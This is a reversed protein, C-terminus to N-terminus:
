WKKKDGFIEDLDSKTPADSNKAEEAEQIKEREKEGRQRVEADIDKQIQMLSQAKEDLWEDHIGASKIVELGKEILQKCSGVQQLRRLELVRQMLNSINVKLVLLLLRRDEKQCSVTDVRTGARIESRIIKRLRRIERLQTVADHDSQPPRFALDERYNALIENIKRQQAVIKNDAEKFHPDDKLHRLANLIRYNLILVLTKSFPLQNQNVLIEESETIINRARTFMVKADAEKKTVYDVYMNYIILLFTALVIFIVAITVFM